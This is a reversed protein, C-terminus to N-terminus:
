GQQDRWKYINVNRHAHIALRMQGWRPELLIGEVDDNIWFTERLRLLCKKGPEIVYESKTIRDKAPDFLFHIFLWPPHGVDDGEWTQGIVLTVADITFREHKKVSLMLNSMTEGIIKRSSEAM